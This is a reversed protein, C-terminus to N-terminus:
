REDWDSAQTKKEDKMVSVENRRWWGDAMTWGRSNGEWREGKGM